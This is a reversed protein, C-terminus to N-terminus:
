FCFNATGRLRLLDPWYDTYSYQLWSTTQDKILGMSNHADLSEMWAHLEYGGRGM